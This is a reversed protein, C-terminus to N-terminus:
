AADEFRNQNKSLKYIDWWKESIKNIVKFLRSRLISIDQILWDSKSKLKPWKIDTIKEISVKIETVLSFLDGLDMKDIKNIFDNRETKHIITKLDNM